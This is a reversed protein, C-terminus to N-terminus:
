KVEKVAEVATEMFRIGVAGELANLRAFMLRMWKKARRGKKKGRGADGELISSTAGRSELSHGRGVGMDVFRGSDDFTQDATVTMGSTKVSDRFSAVLSDAYGIRRKRVEIPLLEQNRRSWGQVLGQVALFAKTEASM